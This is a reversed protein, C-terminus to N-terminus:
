PRPSPGIKNPRSANKKKQKKTKSHRQVNWGGSIERGGDVGTLPNQYRIEDLQRDM